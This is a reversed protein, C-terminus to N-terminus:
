RTSSCAIKPLQGSVVELYSFQGARKSKTKSDCIAGELQASNSQKWQAGGALTIANACACHAIPIFVRAVRLCNRM